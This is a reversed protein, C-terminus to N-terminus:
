HSFIWTALHLIELYVFFSLSCRSTALNELIAKTHARESDELTVMWRTCLVELLHSIHLAHLEIQKCYSFFDRSLSVVIGKSSSGVIFFTRIRIVSTSPDTVYSPTSNFFCSRARACRLACQQTSQLYLSNGECDNLIGLYLAEVGCKLLGPWLRNATFRTFRTLRQDHQEPHWRCM